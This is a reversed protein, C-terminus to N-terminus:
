TSRSAARGRRAGQRDRGADHRRRPGLQRAALRAAQRALPLPGEIGLAEWEAQNARVRAVVERVREASDIPVSAIVEGTAPNHVDFSQGAGNGSTGRQRETREATGSEM